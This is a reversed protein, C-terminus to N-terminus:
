RCELRELLVQRLEDISGALCAPQCSELEERSGYGYLVGVAAIGNSAAGLLDYKRDGVMTFAAPDAGSYCSMAATIVEAKNTRSGDLNSGVVQDFYGALGFREVIRRAYVTPKSTAVCLRAGAAQLAGLMDAVGEYPANEFLGKDGFYERYLEVAKWARGESFGCCTQFSEVLPPGIFTQLVDEPPIAVEMQRLAYRVSNLIGDKSDTLTGDLDLLIFGGAM